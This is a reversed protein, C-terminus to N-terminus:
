AVGTPDEGVVLLNDSAFRYPPVVLNTPAPVGQYVRGALDFRSGHCPCFFGGLWQEGLDAPAKEPRYTPTCGLHTCIGVLVLVEPRLSRHYNVVYEPQQSVVASEPDRLKSVLMDNELTALMADTRRVIWIPKGRWEVRILQGPEVNTTDIEVPAGAAQARESPQMSSLFPVAAAVLGAGGVVTTAGVLFRRRGTNVEEHAKGSEDAM